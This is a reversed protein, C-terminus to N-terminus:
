QNLGQNLGNIQDKRCICTRGSYRRADNKEDPGQGIRSESKPRLDGSIKKKPLLLAAALV